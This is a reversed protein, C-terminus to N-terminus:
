VSSASDLWRVLRTAQDAMSQLDDRTVTADCEFCEVVLTEAWIRLGDTNGCHPCPVHFGTAKENATENATTAPM